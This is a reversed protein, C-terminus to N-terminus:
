SCYTCLISRLGLDVDIKATKFKYDLEVFEDLLKRLTIEDFHSLQNRYKNVLFTQNPKLGLTLAINQGNKIAESCLYLKKFHTYLTKLIILIEIKQYILEDLVQLADGIKKNALNDTLDFIVSDMQKIALNDVDQETIKGNPGAYEILKRVENILTELNTGSREILYQIVNDDINVTYMSCIKKLRTKLEVAPLEQIECVIGNKDLEDFVSNKDASQEVFVIVANENIYNVNETQSIYEYIKEQVPTLNKRRGDKKFLGSNRVIILKKDFGFAPMEIESILNEVNTEDILVYNIGQVLTGFQKKIKNLANQVLYQEEGYLLYMGEVSNSINNILTNYNIRM